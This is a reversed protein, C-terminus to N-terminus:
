REIHTDFQSLAQGTRPAPIDRVRMFGVAQACAAGANDFGTLMRISENVLAWTLRQTESCVVLPRASAPDKRTSPSCKTSSARLEPQILFSNIRSPNSLGYGLREATCKLVGTKLFTECSSDSPHIMASHAKGGCTERLPVRKRTASRM